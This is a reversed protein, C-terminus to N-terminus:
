YVPPNGSATNWNVDSRRYYGYHRMCLTSFRQIELKDNVEWHEKPVGCGVAAWAFDRATANPNTSYWDDNIENHVHHGCAGLALAIFLAPLFRPLIM